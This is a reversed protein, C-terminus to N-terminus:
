VILSSLYQDMLQLISVTNVPMFVVNIENYRELLAEQFMVLRLSHPKVSGEDRVMARGRPMPGVMPESTFQVPGRYVKISM